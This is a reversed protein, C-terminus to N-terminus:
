GGDAMQELELFLSATWSMLPAGLPVGTHPHYYEWFLPDGPQPIYPEPKDAVLPWSLAVIASDWLWAHAYQKKSPTTLEDGFSNLEMVGMAAQRLADRDAGEAIMNLSIER